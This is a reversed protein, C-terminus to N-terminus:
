TKILKIFINVLSMFTTIKHEPFKNDRNWYDRISPLKFVGAYILIALWIRFEKITLEKWKRGEGADKMYAYKNTNKIIIEIQELSFFLFFISYPSLSLLDNPLNVTFKHLPKTHQFNNFFPPSPLQAAQEKHNDRGSSSNRARSWGRGRSRGPDKSM